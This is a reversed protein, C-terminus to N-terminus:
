STRGEALPSNERFLSFTIPASPRVHDLYFQSRISDREREKGREKGKAGRVSNQFVNWGSVFEKQLVVWPRKPKVVKKLGEMLMTSLKAGLKLKNKILRPQWIQRDLKITANLNNSTATCAM